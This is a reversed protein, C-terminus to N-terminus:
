EVDNNRQIIQQGMISQPSKYAYGCNLQLQDFCADCYTVGNIFAMEYINIDPNHCTNDDCRNSANM